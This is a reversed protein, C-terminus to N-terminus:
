ARGARAAHREGELLAEAARRGSHLAEQISAMGRHDGCLYAGSSARVPRERVGVAYPRQAHLARPIRQLAVLRWRSVDPGFWGGLQARVAEDLAGDALGRDEIVTASCLAAGPPAYDRSVASAVHFNNVPGRGEGDLVLLPADLPAREAAYWLCTVGRWVLGASGPLLRDAEEFDTAVIVHAADIREGARTRVGGPEVAEVGTGLRVVGPGLAAAMQRPIEGMGLAPVAADGDAFMRFVFELVRSSTELGRELFVGGLWPRFFADVFGPTFGRRELAELTSSEPRAALEELTARRVDRRLRAVRLKDGLTGVRTFVTGLAAVPRRYPDVIRAFRGGRRVLAGPEFSCLDLAGYDLVRRAEPYATLLVQFGRDLRFGDVRDTRVRGGVEDSAELVLVSRGAASLTRAAALGALGAGVIVADLQQM